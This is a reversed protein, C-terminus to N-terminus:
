RLLGTADTLSQNGVGRCRFGGIEKREGPSENDGQISAVVPVDPPALGRSLEIGTRFICADGAVRMRKPAAHRHMKNCPETSMSRVTYLYRVSTLRFGAVNVGNEAGPAPESAGIARIGHISGM